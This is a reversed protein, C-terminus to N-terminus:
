YGRWIKRSEEQEKTLDEKWSVINKSYYIATSLQVVIRKARGTKDFAGMSITDAKFYELWSSLDKNVKLGNVIVIEDDVAVGAKEAPSGPFVSHVKNEILRIGLYAEHFLPTAQKEFQLGFYDLGDKLLETYDKAGNIYNAFFEDLNKDAFFEVVNKYDQESIGKGKKYFDNYFARLVNDFSYKNKSSKRIEVDLMFTLLAGETYISAKRNPVGAVYGDLWTDFSSDAVSLNLSGPNNFHRDLFQNFTRFFAVDDFVKSRYLMLDGYWTTAGETLYGLKTYNEKSFNYPLMEVPRIRKVNWTHFLEHSSVGLLDEYRGEKKLIAYSPGLAIVTSASHEVGHYASHPLIQFLYHYEKTPFDGFLKIQEKTYAMFDTELLFWDPKFEGQFWLYFTTGSLEFSNYQINASAIFPSDVLEDFDKALFTNKETEELAIAVKYDKPLKLALYCAEQMRSEEYILCNVPNMYLQDEALYTSGANLENAFYNYRIIVRKAGMCDVAWLDKSRKQANLEAGKEDYAAWKQINKAFNGLEYRGPRWAPLQFHMKEEGNVQIEAEIDIYRTNPNDYSISYKM